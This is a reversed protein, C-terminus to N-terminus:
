GPFARGPLEAEQADSRAFCLKAGKREWASGPFSTGVLLRFFEGQNPSRNETLLDKAQPCPYPCERCSTTAHYPHWPGRCDGLTVEQTQGEQARGGSDRRGTHARRLLTRPM